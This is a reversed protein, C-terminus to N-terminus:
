GNVENKRAALWPVPNIPQGNRRLEVYLVPEGNGEDIVGVPEGAIVQQGQEVDIRSMGALLSHYGETHEIILLLGYGRFKGAYAVTGDFTAVIQARNPTAITVGKRSLGGDTKEGYRGVIRGTAPLNLRGRAKGIQRLQRPTVSAPKKASGPPISAQEKPATEARRKKEANLGALLEQLSKAQQGLAAVRKESAYAQKDARRKLFKKRSMLAGLRRRERDLLDTTERLSEARAAIEARAKVLFEVEERLAGAQKDIEGVAARLLIATRVTDAPATPQAILAEPPLQAVRQMASLVRAFRKRSQRLEETREDRLKELETMRATIAEVQREHQQVAKAASVMESQLNSIDKAITGSRARAAEAASKEKEITSQIAKLKDASPQSQALASNSIGLGLLLAAL